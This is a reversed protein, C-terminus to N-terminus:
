LGRHVPPIDFSAPPEGARHRRWMEGIMAEFAEAFRDADCLSSARMRSRLGERLSKLKPEDRALGTAIGVYGEVSGAVFETLGLHTLYGCAHRSAMTDGPLTVVPVGMWLTELTTAGGTYPFSDLAIDAGAMAAIHGAPTTRGVFDVRGAEVGAEALRGAYLDVTGPDEFRVSKFLLRSKPVAALIRAWAQLTERTVKVNENFSGFTIFGNRLFPAPSPDPTGAVPEYCVYSDPFRVIKESYFPIAQDPVQVRDALFYDMAGVGTTAPYGVWTAQIPALRRALAPMRNGATHGTLDILIDIGDKQILDALDDDSLDVVERVGNSAAAFRDTMADRNSHCSYLRLDHGRRHLAEIAPIVLHAVVHTRFDASIFGIRPSRAGDAPRAPVSSIGHAAGWARAASLVGPLAVGPLYLETFLLNSHALGFDPACALARALSTVAEDLFGQAKLANALNNLADTDGPRLLVAKRYFTVADTMAGMDLLTDALAVHVHGDLPRLLMMRWSISLSDRIDGEGKLAFALAVGAEVFAPDIALAARYCAIAQAPRSQARHLNGLNFQTQAAGSDLRAARLFLATAGALNERGRRLVENGLNALADAYDPRSVMAARYHGEAAAGDGRARLALGLNYHVRPSQPAFALAARYAAEAEDFRSLSQHVNGLNCLADANGPNLDAARGYLFLADRSRGAAQAALGCNYYLAAANPFLALAGLILQIAQDHRGRLHSIVGLQNLSDAHRPDRRLIDHYLAEAEDWAGATQRRSARAFLDSIAPQFEASM